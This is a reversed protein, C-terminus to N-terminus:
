LYFEDIETPYYDSNRNIEYISSITNHIGEENLLDSISIVGVIKNNDSIIVRKIKHERMCSLVDDISDDISCSFVNKSIYDEVKASGKACSALGKVIIDRDTIVGIIKKNKSIPIFGIDYKKMLESIKTINDTSKGIILNKSMLDKIEMNEGNSNNTFLFNNHM